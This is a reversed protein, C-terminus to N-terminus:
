KIFIITVVFLIIYIIKMIKKGKISIGVIKNEVMDIWSPKQEPNGSISSNYWWPYSRCLNLSIDFLAMRTLIGIFPIKLTYWWDYLLIYPITALGVALAYWVGKWFHSIIKNQKFLHAQHLAQWVIIAFLFTVILIKDLLNM